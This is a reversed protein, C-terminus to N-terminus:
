FSCCYVRIIEEIIRRTNNQCLIVSLSFLSLLTCLSNHTIIDVLIYVLGSTFSINNIYAFMTLADTFKNTYCYAYIQYVCILIVFNWVVTFRLMLVIFPALSPVCSLFYTYVILDISYCVDCLM